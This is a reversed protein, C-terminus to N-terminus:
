NLSRHVNIIYLIIYMYKTINNNHKYKPVDTTLKKLSLTKKRTGTYSTNGSAAKDRRLCSKGHTIPTFLDVTLFPGNTTTKARRKVTLRARAVYIATFNSEANGISCSQDFNDSYM